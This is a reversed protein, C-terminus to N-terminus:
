CLVSDVALCVVRECLAPFTAKDTAVPNPVLYLTSLLEPCQDVYGLAM